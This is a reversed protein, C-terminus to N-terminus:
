RLARHCCALGNHIHVIGDGCLSGILSRLRDFRACAARGLRARTADFPGPLPIRLSRGSHGVPSTRDLPDLPSRLRRKGMDESYVAVMWDVVREPTRSASETVQRHVITCALEKSAVAAVCAQIARRPSELWWHRQSLLYVRRRTHEAWPKPRRM